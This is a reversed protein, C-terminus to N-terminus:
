GGFSIGAEIKNGIIWVTVAVAVLDIERFVALVLGTMAKILQIEVVHKFVGGIHLIEHAIIHEAIGANIRRQQRIAENCDIANIVSEVDHHFVDVCAKQDTVM